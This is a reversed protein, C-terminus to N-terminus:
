RKIIKEFLSRSNESRTLVISSIDDSGGRNRATLVIQKLVEQSKSVGKQCKYICKRIERFSIHKYLGDTCLMFSDAEELEGSLEYLEIDPNVGICKTLTNALAEYDMILEHKVSSITNRNLLNDDKTLQLM